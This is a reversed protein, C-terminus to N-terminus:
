LHISDRLVEVSPTVSFKIKLIGIFILFYENKLLDLSIHLSVINGFVSTKM